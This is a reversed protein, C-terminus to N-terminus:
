KKSRKIDVIAAYYKEILNKQTPSLYIKIVDVVEIPATVLLVDNLGSTEVKTAYNKILKEQATLEDDVYYLTIVAGAVITVVGVGQVIRTAVLARSAKTAAIESATAERQLAAKVDDDYAAIRDDNNIFQWFTYVDPLSSVTLIGIGAYLVTNGVKIMTKNSEGDQIFERVTVLKEKLADVEDVAVALSQGSLQTSFAVISLVTFFRCIIKLM